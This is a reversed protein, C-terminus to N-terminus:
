LVNIDLINPMNYNDELFQDVIEISGEVWGQNLSIDNNLYTVNGNPGFVNIMETQLNYVSKNPVTIDLTKWFAAGITWYKWGIQDPFPVSPNYDTFMQQIFNMLYTLYAPYPSSVNILSVQELTPLQPAWFEADEAIAYIMITNDNYFWVQSLPLDTTSRGITFNSTWWPNDYKLFLKLLPVGVLHPTFLNYYDDPFGEISQLTNSPSTIFLKNAIISLSENNNNNNVLDIQVKNDSTQLFKTFETNQLLMNNTAYNKNKINQFSVNTFTSACKQPVQGYGEEVFYQTSDVGNLAIDEYSVCLFNGGIYFLGTYGTINAYRRYNETSVPTPGQTVENRFSLGSLDPDKFAILREPYMPGPNVGYEAFKALINGTISAFVIGDQEAPQLFYVQNTDPFLGPTSFPFTHTRGSFISSPAVVPMIVKNLNLLGVLKDTRPQISPFFRMGGFELATNYPNEGEGLYSSLLRGGIRDSKEVLLVKKDPFQSSLRRALYTGTIGGGVVVFDIIAPPTIPPTIPPAPITRNQFNYIWNSLMPNGLNYVSRTIEPM